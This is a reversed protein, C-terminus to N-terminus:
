TKSLESRNAPASTSAWHTTKRRVCKGLPVSQVRKPRHSFRLRFIAARMRATAASMGAAADKDDVAGSVLREEVFIQGPHGVDIDNLRLCQFCADPGSTRVPSRGRDRSHDRIWTLYSKKNSM